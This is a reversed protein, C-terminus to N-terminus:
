QLLSLVSQPLANAQALIATGAQQLIQSRSLNATEAAFDADQIRGRSASLNESQINLNSITSELRNQFAGLSARSNAVNEIAADIIALANSASTATTLDVSSVGAGVTVTAATNGSDASLGAAALGTSDGGITIGASSNSTLTLTSQAAGTDGISFSATSTTVSINRGDSATLTYEGTSATTVAATVGTQDSVANVAAVFNNVNEVLGATSTANTGQVSLTVGNITTSTDDEPSATSVNATGTLTTASVTATVGTDGSVANIAAAKAIGSADASVNSVGDSTSAGVNYGNITLGGSALAATSVVVDGVVSTNYASGSGVGLSAARASSISSITIQNSGGANAGVQLTQSTFTGDLLKLGNFNTNQAVRDIEAVLQTAENNLKQRDTTSNSANSAQVALERIRQLNASVENLAGEAIQLVSIGDNANRAAQNSGRIQATFRAAIALGAADDKASNVRLGSSLRQLSTALSGQTSNLNRQANLSAVNTNVSLAM